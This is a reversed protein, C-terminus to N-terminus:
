EHTEFETLIVPSVLERLTPPGLPPAAGPENTDLGRRMTDAHLPAAQDSGILAWRRCNPWYDSAQEIQYSFSALTADALVFAPASASPLADCPRIGVFAHDNAHLAQLVAHIEGAKM